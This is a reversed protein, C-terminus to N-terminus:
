QVAKGANPFGFGYFKDPGAPGEDDATSVLLKKLDALKIGPHAQKALAAVGAVAPAAM